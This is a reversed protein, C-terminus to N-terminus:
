SSSFGTVHECKKCSYMHDGQFRQKRHADYDEQEWEIYEHKCGIKFYRVVHGGSMGNLPFWKGDPLDNTAFSPVYFNAVAIGYNPYWYYNMSWAALSATDRKLPLMGQSSFMGGLMSYSGLALLEIFDEETIEKMPEPLHRGNDPWTIGNDAVKNTASMEFPM